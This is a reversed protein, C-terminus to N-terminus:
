EMQPKNTHKKHAIRDQEAIWADRKARAANLSHATCSFLVGAHTRYDYQIRTSSNFYGTSIAFEEWQEQGPKCTSCGNKDSKM